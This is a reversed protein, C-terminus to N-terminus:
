AVSKVERSAVPRSGMYAKLVREDAFVSEAPGSAIVRGQELVSVSTALSAVLDLHHEVIVITAGLGAIDKILACLGDLESMSLGAAPEDLLLLRPNGALARAIEVLRQQGHPIESAPDDARADLGVFRLQRLAAAALEAHERRAFPTRFALAAISARENSFAGLMVNELVSLDPILKPTQFTRRIGARAIVTADNGVISKGDVAITGDDIPYFGTVVNLLTTKGSGNPGVIAHITGAAVDLSAGDLAPVGGFHKAANVVQLAAGTIRTTPLAVEEIASGTSVPPRRFRRRFAEVGGAIGDPAYLSFVLLLAGYVLLRWSQLGSMLEPLLFFAVTGFLPGHLSGLGGLVIVLLFFISFETAFDDPTIVTKQVAFLAGAAGALLASYVFAAIKLRGLSVGSGIGALPNDRLARLALGYRSGLLNRTVLFAAVSLALGLWYLDRDGMVHSGIMPPPVGVVGNFGHTLSGWETLISAVVRAFGLTILAFYWASLRFTPLAMAAGILASGALALPLALWFSLGGDVMLLAATYAGIAVLAGHGISTQGGYGTLVNLGLAVLYYICLQTAVYLAYESRLLPLIIAAGLVLIVGAVIAPRDGASTRDAM